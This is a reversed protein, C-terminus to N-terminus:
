ETEPEAGVAGDAPKPKRFLVSAPIVQKEVGPGEYSVVLTEGGAAEAYGVRIPHLGAELTVVGAREFPAHLGNNDVVLCDGIWLRGGDDSNVYFTYKGEARVRIYGRFQMCFGDQGAYAGIGFVDTTGTEDPKLKRFDPVLGYGSKYFRFDLGNVLGEVEVSPIPKVKELKLRKRIIRRNRRVSVTVVEGPDRDLLAICYDMGTVMKRGNVAVIVDGARLGAAAGPAGKAVEKITPRGLPDVVLGTVFDKRDEVNVIDPLARVVADIPVAFSVGDAWGRSNCVLGIVEGKTNILAGGSSGGIIPADTQIMDDRWTASGGWQYESGQNLGTIHGTLITLGRGGPNGLAAVNQGKSLKNSRGIKLPRFKVDKDGTDIKILAVDITKGTEVVTFPYSKGDHFIVKKDGLCDGMVHTNSLAYGDETILVASGMALNSGDKAKRAIEVQMISSKCKEYVNAWKKQKRADPEAGVSVTVGLLVIAACVLWSKRKM